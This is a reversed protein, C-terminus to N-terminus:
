CKNGRERMRMVILIICLFNLLKEKIVGIVGSLGIM